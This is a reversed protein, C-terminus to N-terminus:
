QGFYVKHGTDFQNSADNRLVFLDPINDDNVDVIRVGSVRTPGLQQNSNTYGGLGDNFTIIVGDGGTYTVFDVNGDNNLDGVDPGQLTGPFLSLDNRIFNGAGNNLSISASTTVGTATFLIDPLSDNNFDAVDLGVSSEVGPSLGSDSFNASGDNLWIKNAVTGVEVNAVIADLTGDSNIDVLEVDRADDAVFSFGSDFIGSGNNFWINISNLNVVFADLDGDNDLDGIATSRSNANGLNQGSNSFLGNGDNFWVRDGAVSFAFFVDLDGDGDLDALDVDSSAGSVDQGNDMFFGNGDNLWVRGTGAINVVLADIDGDGDLDGFDVVRGRLNGLNQGSDVFTGSTVPGVPGSGGGVVSPELIVELSTNLNSKLDAVLFLSDYSEFGDKSLLLQYTSFGDVVEILNVGAILSAQRITDLGSRVILNATTTQLVNNVTDKEFVVLQFKFSEIFIPVFSAYGYEDPSANDILLVEVAVNTVEDRIVSFSIPLPDDVLQAKPSGELPAAWIAVDDSNLVLFSTVVYNGPLLEVPDSAYGDGFSILDIISNDLIINGLNDEVTVLIKDPVETNALRGGNIDKIALDFRVDVPQDGIGDDHRCSSFLITVSVILFFLNKM